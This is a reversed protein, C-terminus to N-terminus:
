TGLLLITIQGHTQLSAHQGEIWLKINHGSWIKLHDKQKVQGVGHIARGQHMGLFQDKQHEMMKWVLAGKVNDDKACTPISNFAVHKGQTRTTELMCEANM